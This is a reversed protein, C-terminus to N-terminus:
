QATFSRVISTAASYNGNGAQSATVQVTGTGTVSLINNTISAPGTVSYTVPLGSSTRASLPFNTGHTINPLPYFTIAQSAKGVTLTGNIFNFTYNADSLTGTTPIIAYPSGSVTSVPTATTTISPSGSVVSSTDGNVFSGFSYGFTAPNPQDFARSTSSATVNLVAPAIVVNFNVPTAAAYDANGAQTATFSATGAGTITYPGNGSGTVPGSNLTITPTLGSSATAVGTLSFATGGYAPTPLTGITISQSAATIVLSYSITSTGGSGTDTVTLTFAYTGPATPTGSIIVYNQGIVHKLTVGTPLAGSETISATGTYGVPNFTTSYSTNYVGPPITAPSIGVKTTVVDTDGFHFAEPDGLMASTMVSVTDGFHFGEADASKDPGFISVVDTLKFGEPDLVMAPFFISDSDTFHFAEAVGIKAPFFISDVDTFHFTETDTVVANGGSADPHLLQPRVTISYDNQISGGQLDTVSVHFAYTGAVSPVGSIAITTPGRDLSLGTPVDGSFLISYTGSGGAAGVSSHFPLGITADPLSGETMTLPVRQRPTSQLVQQPAQGHVRPAVLPLLALLLTAPHLRTRRTTSQVTM